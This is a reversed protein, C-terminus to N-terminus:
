NIHVRQSFIDQILGSKLEGLNRMENRHQAIKKDCVNLISEIKSQEELNSSYFVRIEKIQQYNLGQRNGGAQLSMIQRQGYRSQLFYNLLMPTIKKSTRIICVHQNVNAEPFGPPVITCRGISAGTINLLVDENHVRSRSMSKHITPTIYALEETHLGDFHVNQSRVFPIGSEKYVNSGGRPTVGSGVHRTLNGIKEVEWEEPIDGLLTKKFKKHGIGKTLLENLLGNKLEETKEIIQDTKQIAEDVSSLIEAIKQQLRISLPVSVPLNEFQKRSLYSITTGSALDNLRNSSSAMLYYLFLSDIKESPVLGIFTQNTVLPRTTIACRGLDASCSVLVTNKPYIRLRMEKITQEDVYQKSKSDSLYIGDFDEIRCWPIDGSFVKPKDRMPVIFDSVVDSLNLTKWTSNPM